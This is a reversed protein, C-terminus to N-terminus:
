HRLLHKGTRRVVVDGGRLLQHALLLDPAQRYDVRLPAQCADNREVIDRTLTFTLGLHFLGALYAVGFDRADHSRDAGWAVAYNFCRRLQGTFPRHVKWHAVVLAPGRAPGTRTPRLPPNIHGANPKVLSQSPNRLLMYLHPSPLESGLGVRERGRPEPKSRPSKQPCVVDFIALM